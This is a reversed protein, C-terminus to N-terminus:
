GNSKSLKMIATVEAVLYIVYFLLFAVVSLKSFHEASAVAYIIVAIATLLMKIMMGSMISRIFVNPNAHKLAKGQLLFIALSIVFLLANGCLLVASDIDWKSLLPKMMILAISLLVFISVLIWVFRRQTNM